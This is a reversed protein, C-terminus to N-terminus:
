APLSAARVPEGEIRGSRMRIVRDCRSALAADHTVLALTAGRRAPLDFMMEIIARGTAEDLNGTPEDAIM